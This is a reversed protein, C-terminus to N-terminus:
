REVTCHDEDVIDYFNETYNGNEKDEKEFDAIVKLGEEITKVEEMFTGTEKDAVYMKKNTNKM